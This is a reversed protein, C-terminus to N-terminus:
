IMGLPDQDNTTSNTMSTILLSLVYVGCVVTINQQHTCRINAPTM